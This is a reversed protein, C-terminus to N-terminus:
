SAYMWIYGGASKYKGKCCQCISSPNCGIQRSAGRISQYEAIFEGDKSYQLIGNVGMSKSTKNRSEESHKCSHSSYASKNYGENISDFLRIFMEEVNLAEQKDEFQGLINHEWDTNWDSNKIDNYMQQNNRYGSLGNEWRRKPELSTMGIYSKGNRLNRHQYVTYM